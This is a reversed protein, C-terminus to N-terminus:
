IEGHGKTQLPRFQRTTPEACCFWSETLRPPRPRVPRRARTRASSEAPRGAMEDALARIRDFTVVAEEEEKASIEVTASVAEHLRDMREDPHTWQYQFGAQDLPGLFRQVDSKTLLASGPPILLRISLQVPDTADILDHAEVMDLMRAYDDLSTWPTFAVLSPRLAIGAERLIDLASIIDAGTHGKHLQELVHDSFSEVASVAFLCGLARLETMLSRRKLLHEIKATFDFTLNPFEAHMARVISMSHGPGNLFDPDGFTVHTAGANVQRRIDELVVEAPILFFRGEYVPVIPCHLCHHLCGRSAEVYGVLRQAGNEELRAYRDLTPLGRRSPVPFAGSGVGAHSPGTSTASILRKLYPGVIRSRSSVGEIEGIAGGKELAQILTVLPIEYEGAVVSDALEGLLYKANISAYLGYFCIHCSPNATRILEAVRVGLRLATHMPVSIGAFRARRIAQEDINEVAIDLGVPCYGSQELFGIPQAIGIPQHGLEYCSVFLIAGPRRM